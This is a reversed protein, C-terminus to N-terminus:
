LEAQGVVLLRAFATADAALVLKEVHPSCSGGDAWMRCLLTALRAKPAAFGRTGLWGCAM